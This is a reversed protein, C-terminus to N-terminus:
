DFLDGTRQSHFDVLGLNGIQREQPIQANNMAALKLSNLAQVSKM